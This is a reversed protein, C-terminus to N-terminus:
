IGNLLRLKPNHTWADFIPQGTDSLVTGTGAMGGDTM